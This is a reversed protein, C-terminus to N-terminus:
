SMGYEEEVKCIRTRYNLYWQERGLRQALQHESEQKWRKIDELSRWYCVTMGFGDERRVSEMGLFGERKTVLEFMRDAMGAYGNDGETRMSTFIVAYYPPAPTRAIENVTEAEIENLSM